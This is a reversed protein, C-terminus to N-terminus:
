ITEGVLVACSRRSSTDSVEDRGMPVDGCGDFDLAAGLCFLHHCTRM